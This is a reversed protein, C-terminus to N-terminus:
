AKGQRLAAGMAKGMFAWVKRDAFPAMKKRAGPPWGKRDAWLKNLGSQIGRDGGTFGELLKRWRAALAQSKRSAPDEGEEIAASVQAFLEAWEREVRQQLAPSWLKKREAIKAQAKEGYYKRSWDMSEQMEIVEIIKKLLATEPPTGPRISKEAKRIVSIAIDLLTRKDQLVSRQLRLADPLDLVNRDLLGKIRKLPIGLFSLAVIQELRELDRLRYLRYGSDTRQPRLLGLRDYHHLTRVTLGALDAFAQVRYLQPKVTQTVPIGEKLITTGSTVDPDLFYKVM